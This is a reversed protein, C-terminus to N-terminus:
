EESEYDVVNGLLLWNNTRTLFLPGGGGLGLGVVEGVVLFILTGSARNFLRAYQAMIAM